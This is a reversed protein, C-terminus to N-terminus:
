RQNPMQTGGTDQRNFRCFRKVRSIFKQTTDIVAVADDKFLGVYVKPGAALSADAGGLAAMCALAVAGAAWRTM